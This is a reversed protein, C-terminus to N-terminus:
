NQEMRKREAVIQRFVSNDKEEQLYEEYTKRKKSKKPARGLKREHKAVLLGQEDDRATQPEM